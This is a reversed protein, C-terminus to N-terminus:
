QNEISVLSLLNRTKEAVVVVQLKSNPKKLFEIIKVNSKTDFKTLKGDAFISYGSFACHPMLAYEKNYGEIFKALNGPKEFAANRNDIIEGKITVSVTPGPAQRAFCLSSVCLLALLTLLIRKM